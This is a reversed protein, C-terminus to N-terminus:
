AQTSRLRPVLEMLAGAIILCTGLVQYTGFPEDLLIAASAVGAIIEATLVFSLISPAIKQASWMTLVMIPVVYLCGYGLGAVLHIAEVSPVPELGAQLLGVLVGAACVYLAMTGAAQPPSKFVVSSGAAWALGSLLALVDGVGISKGSLDGGVAFFAGFLSVAIAFTSTRQWGHGMFAWEFLKSWAPALYFLLVARAVDTYNISTAFSSIAVGALISGLAAWKNIRWNGTAFAWCALALFAGANMTIGAWAGTLGFGELQRIPLWWIGWIVAAIFALVVPKM